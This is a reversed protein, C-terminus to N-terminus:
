IRSTSSGCTECVKPHHVEGASLTVRYQGGCQPLGCNTEGWIEPIVDGEKSDRGLCRERDDHDCGRSGGDHFPLGGSTSRDRCARYTGRRSRDASRDRASYRRSRHQHARYRARPETDPTLVENLLEGETIKGPFDFGGEVLRGYYYTDEGEPLAFQASISKLHVGAIYVELKGETHVVTLM